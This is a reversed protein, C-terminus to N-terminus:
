GDQQSRFVVQDAGTKGQAVVTESSVISFNDNIFLNSLAFLLSM